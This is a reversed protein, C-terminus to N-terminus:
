FFQQDLDLTLEPYDLFLDRKARLENELGPKGQAREIRLEYYNVMAQKEDPTGQKLTEMIGDDLPRSFLDRKARLEAQLDAHREAQAIRSEYYKMMEQKEVSSGQRLKAKIVENLFADRVACLEDQLWAYGYAQEIWTEVNEFWPHKIDQDIKRLDSQIEAIQKEAEAPNTSFIQEIEQNPIRSEM